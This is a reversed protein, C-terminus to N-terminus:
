FGDFTMMFSEEEPTTARDLLHNRHPFRDFEAIVDFHKQAFAYFREAHTKANIPASETLALYKELSIHQLEIRESHMLPLYFFMREIPWLQKDIGEHLGKLVLEQCLPDQAFAEAKERYINRSFQDLLIILSLLDRPTNVWGTLKGQACVSLTPEFDHRIMEDFEPPSNFWFRSQADPFDHESKLIGFWFKHVDTPRKIISM